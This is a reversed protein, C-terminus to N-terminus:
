GFIMFTNNEREVPGFQFTYRFKEGKGDPVYGGSHVKGSSVFLARM